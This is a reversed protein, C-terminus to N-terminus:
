RGVVGSELQRHYEAADFQGQSEHILGDAGITWVERGSICVPKGTGGPGTNTGTLTWRYIAHDGDVSVEDMTVIMDPFATMFGQASATIAARGVSPGGENITLSGDEAYFAAVSAADQSCWAATYRTGLDQLTALDM